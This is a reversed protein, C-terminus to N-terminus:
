CDGRRLTLGRGIAGVLVDVPDIPTRAPRPDERRRGEVVHRVSWRARRLQIGVRQLRRMLARVRLPRRDSRRRRDPDDPHGVRADRIAIQVVIPERGAVEPTIVPDVEATRLDGDVAVARDVLVPVGAAQVLVDLGRAVEPPRRGAILGRARGGAGPDDHERHERDRELGLLGRARAQGGILRAIEVVLRAPDSARERGIERRRVRRAHARHLGRDVSARDAGVDIGAGVCVCHVCHWPLSISALTSM